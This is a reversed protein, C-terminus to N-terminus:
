AGEERIFRQIALFAEGRWRCETRALRRMEERARALHRRGQAASRAADASADVLVLGWAEDGRNLAERARGWRASAAAEAARIRGELRALLREAV